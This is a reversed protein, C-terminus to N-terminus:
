GEPAHVVQRAGRPDNRQGGASIASTASSKEVHHRHPQTADPRVLPRGRRPFGLVQDRMGGRELLVKLGEVVENLVDGPSVGPPHVRGLLPEILATAYLARIRYSAYPSIDPLCDVDIASSSADASPAPARTSGGGRGPVDTRWAPVRPVAPARATGPPSRPSGARAPLPAARVVAGCGSPWGGTGRHADAVEARLPREGM